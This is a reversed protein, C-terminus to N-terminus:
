RRRCQIRLRLIKIKMMMTTMLKKKMMMMMMVLSYRMWWPKM